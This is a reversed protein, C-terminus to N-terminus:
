SDSSLGSSDSARLRLPTASVVPFTVTGTWGSAGSLTVSAPTVSQTSGDPLVISLSATGSFGNITNGEIDAASLTLTLPSSVNVIDTLASFRYSAIDNDRVAISRNG